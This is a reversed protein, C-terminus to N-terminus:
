RPSDKVTIVPPMSEESSREAARREFGVGYTQTDSPGAPRVRVVRTQIHLVSGDPKRIIRGFRRETRISLAGEPGRSRAMRMKIEGLLARQEDEGLYDWRAALATLEQDSKDAYTRDAVPESGAAISPM